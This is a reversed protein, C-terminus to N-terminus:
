AEHAISQQAAIWPESRRQAILWGERTPPTQCDGGFARSLAFCFLSTM